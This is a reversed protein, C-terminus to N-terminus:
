FWFSNHLCKGCVPHCNRKDELHLRRLNDLEKSFYIEKLTQKNMDGITLKRLDNDDCCPVVRGDFYVYVTGWLQRCPSLWNGGQHFKGVEGVEEINGGGKRNWLDATIVYDVGKQSKWFKVLDRMEKKNKHLKVTSIGVTVNGQNLKKKLSLFNLINRYSVDRKLGLMTEEYTEKKYGMVSFNIKELGGLEFLKGAKEEDLLQGNTYFGYNMNFQRLYKIREFLYKDLLPEGYLSLGIHTINNAACDNIIKKFLDMDMVGTLNASNHYCMVCRANCNLTTEICIGKVGQNNLSYRKAQSLVFAKYFRNNAVIKSSFISKLVDAGFPHSTFYKIFRDRLM